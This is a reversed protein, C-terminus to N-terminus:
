FDIGVGCEGFIEMKGGYCVILLGFFMKFLVVIKGGIWYCIYVFLIFERVM